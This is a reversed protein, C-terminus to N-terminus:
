PNPSDCTGGRSGVADNYYNMADLSHGNAVTKEHKGIAALILGTVSVGLGAALIGGTLGYNPEGSPPDLFYLGGLSSLSSFALIMGTYTLGLAASGAQEASEAHDRAKRVCRVNDTLGYWTSGSAVERGGASMTFGDDYSLVLEGRARLVPTYATAGHACGSLSLAAPVLIGTSRRRRGRPHALTM